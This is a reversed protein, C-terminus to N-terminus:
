SPFVFFMSLLDFSDDKISLELGVSVTELDDTKLLSLLLASRLIYARNSRRGNKFCSGMTSRSNESGSKNLIDASFSFEQDHSQVDMNQCPDTEAIEFASNRLPSDSSNELSAKNFSYLCSYDNEPKKM